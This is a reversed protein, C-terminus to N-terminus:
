FTGVLIEIPRDTRNYITYRLMHEFNWQIHIDSETHDDLSFSLSSARDAGEEYAVFYVNHAPIAVGKGYPTICEQLLGLPVHPYVIGTTVVSIVFHQNPQFVQRHHFDIEKGRFVLHRTLTGVLRELGFWSLDIGNIALGNHSPKISITTSGDSIHVGKSFDPSARFALQLWRKYDMREAINSDPYHFEPLRGYEIKRFWESNWGKLIYSSSSPQAPMAAGYSIRVRRTDHGRPPIHVSEEVRCNLLIRSSYGADYEPDRYEIEVALYNQYRSEPFHSAPSMFRCLVTVEERRDGRPDRLKLNQTNGLIEVRDPTAQSWESTAHPGTESVAWGLYIAKM